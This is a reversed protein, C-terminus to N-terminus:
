TQIDESTAKAHMIAKVQKGAHAKRAHAAFRMMDAFRKGCAECEIRHTKNTM